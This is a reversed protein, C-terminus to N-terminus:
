QQKGNYKKRWEGIKKEDIRKFLYQAKAICHGPLIITQFEDPIRLSPVNLQKFISESTEPIFPSIIASVIAIINVGFSVVADCKSKENKYLSNDLKNDQLFLNGRSSIAMAAELGKKLHVNEMENNYNILLDNFEKLTEQYKNINKYDSDPIVGNYNKNIFKILRNVFNGLNALLENNNRAVFDSWSFQSDASEPRVSLLYYRWVSPSLGLDQANNGFVGVGESKSFKGGEYQLYETCSLHYLMTWPDSTGIQSAPFIITHFSVNDKGMFQYLQVNKPNKWWKEWNETYNATISVYGITADFWVYLVKNEYGKLPVPTGWVLDRTIAFARLGEKLWSNAITKANKSWKGKESQTHIWKEVDGQLKDLQLFIHDTSRLEPTANDMQCKPDILEEPNLLKGCKDCQDGRAKEYACHPCTGEVYRDALFKNHVPCYLQENTQEELYSNKYLKNFIDQAIVTQQNTTTRGFFDFDIDFWDYIKRHITHYKDCLQQPTINEKLARTETATGYEDTGGIFLVNYNRSKVYRAYTDASLVSGIVNGLHPVNNVYPLASTILINREGDKPLIEAEQKRKLFDDKINVRGTNQPKEVETNFNSLVKSIIPVNAFENFWALIKQNQILNKKFFPYLSSFIIIQVPCEHKLSFSFLNALSELTESNLNDSVLSSYLATEEFVLIDLTEIISNSKISLAYFYKVISNPEVLNLSSSDKKLVVNNSDVEVVKIPLKYVASAVSVKLNSVFDIESKGTSLSLTLSM